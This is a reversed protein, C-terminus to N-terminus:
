SELSKKCDKSTFWNINSAYLSNILITLSGNVQGVNKDFLSFIAFYIVLFQYQDM